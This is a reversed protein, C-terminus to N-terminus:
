RSTDEAAERWDRVVSGLYLGSFLLSPLLLLLTGLVPALVKWPEARGLVAGVVLTGPLSLTLGLHLSGAVLSLVRSARPSLRQELFLVQAAILATPLVALGVQAPMPLASLAPLSRVVMVHGALGLAMLPIEYLM